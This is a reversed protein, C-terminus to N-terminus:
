ITVMHITRHNEDGVRELGLLEAVLHEADDRSPDDVALDAVIARRGGLLVDAGLEPDRLRGRALHDAREDALTEDVHAVAAPHAHAGRALPVM